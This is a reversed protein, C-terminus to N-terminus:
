VRFGLGEAVGSARATDQHPRFHSAAEKRAGGEPHKGVHRRAGGDQDVKEINPAVVLCCAKGTSVSKAVEKLGFLLQKCICGKVPDMAIAGQQFRLLERLTILV